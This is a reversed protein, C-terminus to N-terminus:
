RRDFHNALSWASGHDLMSHHWSMARHAGPCFRSFVVTMSEVADPIRDVKRIYHNKVADTSVLRLARLLGEILRISWRSRINARSRLDSQSLLVIM